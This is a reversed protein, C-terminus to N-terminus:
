RSVKMLVVRAATPTRGFGAASEQLNVFDPHVACWAVGDKYVRTTPGGHGPCALAPVYGDYQTRSDREGYAETDCFGAPVGEGRFMPVSCLGRGYEDVAKHREGLRM